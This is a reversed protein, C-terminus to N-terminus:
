EDGYNAWATAKGSVGMDLPFRPPTGKGMPGRTGQLTGLCCSCGRLQQTM